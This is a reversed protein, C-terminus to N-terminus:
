GPSNWWASHDDVLVGDQWEAGANIKPVLLTKAAGIKVRKMKPLHWSTIIVELM